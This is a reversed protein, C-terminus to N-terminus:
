AQEVGTEHFQRFDIVRDFSALLDHDHTVALLTADQFDVANFLLDLITRKNQPDLNGTAEDALILKPRPLLARCIAARQREGQSLENSRRHLMHDLGMQRALDQARERVGSDLKLARSIRYPHLINDLLNLYDLLEFNQFVFGIHTIRFDRRMADSVDHLATECVNIQGQRPVDIGAILNLLTTKGSGSAGIVAVKEGEGIFLEPIRLSFDGEQYDFQLAKLEIM